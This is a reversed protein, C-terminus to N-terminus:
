SADLSPSLRVKVKIIMKRYSTRTPQNHCSDVKAKAKMEDSKVSNPFASVKTDEAARREEKLECWSIESHEPRVKAGLYCISVPLKM